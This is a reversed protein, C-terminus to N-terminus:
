ASARLMLDGKLLVREGDTGNGDDADGLREMMMAMARGAMEAYNQAVTTLPPCAYRSQPHDDHGAIRLDGHERLGVRLGAQWAALQAGLAIRDNACLITRTPLGAAILAKAQEHGFKEFEWSHSDPLPLLHPREGAREMARLYANRRAAANRNVEPMGLYCPPEGSRCLYDVILGFSQNNDTGVFPSTDDPPTDVYIVPIKQALAALNKSTQGVDSPVVIAGAINMSQLKEIASAEIGPDGNSSLMFAFYGSKDAIEEIRSSLAMYFPDTSSPIIIGLVRAQRRKLNVAFMNPRFGSTVIAAEIRHRTSERVSQPDSFYRSVTPRSLGVFASFDEM